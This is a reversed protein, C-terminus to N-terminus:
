GPKKQARGCHEGAEGTAPNALFETGAEGSKVWSVILGVDIADM